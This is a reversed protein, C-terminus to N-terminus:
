GLVRFTAGWAHEICLSNAPGSVLRPKQLHQVGLAAHGLQGGAGALSGLSQDHVVVKALEM